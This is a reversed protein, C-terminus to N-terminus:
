KATELEDLLRRCREENRYLQDNEDMLDKLQSSQHGKERRVADTEMKQDRLETTM